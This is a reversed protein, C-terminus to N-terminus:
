CAHVLKGDVLTTNSDGITRWRADSTGRPRSTFAENDTGSGGGGGPNSSDGAGGGSGGGSDGKIKSPKKQTYSKVYILLLPSLTVYLSKGDRNEAGPDAPEQM